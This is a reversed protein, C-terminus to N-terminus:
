KPQHHRPLFYSHEDRRRVVALHHVQKLLRSLITTPSLWSVTRSNTWKQVMMDHFFRLERGVCFDPCHRSILNPPSLNTLLSIYHRISYLNPFHFLSVVPFSPVEILCQFVVRILLLYLMDSTNYDGTDLSLVFPLRTM